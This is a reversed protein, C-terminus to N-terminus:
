IYERVVDVLVRSRVRRGGTMICEKLGPSVVLAKSDNSIHNEQNVGVEKDEWSFVWRAPQSFLLLGFHAAVMIIAILNDEQSRQSGVDPEVFSRLIQNLLIAFRVAAPRLNADSEINVPL